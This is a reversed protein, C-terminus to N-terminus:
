KKKDFLPLSEDREVDSQMRYGVGWVASLFKQDIEDAGSDKCKDKFNGYDVDLALETMLRVFKEREVFVRFRYDSKESEYITGPAPVWSPFALHLKVLHERRRARLMVRGYDLEVKAGKVSKKGTDKRACVASFFGFRSTIWVNAESERTGM